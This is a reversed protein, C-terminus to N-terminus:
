FKGFVKQSIEAVNGYDSSKRSFERSFLSLESFPVRDPSHNSQATLEVYVDLAGYRARVTVIACVIAKKSRISDTTREWEIKGSLAKKIIQDFISDVVERHAKEFESQNTIKLLHGFIALAAADVQEHSFKVM